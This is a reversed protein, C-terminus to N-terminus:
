LGPSLKSPLPATRAPLSIIKQRGSVKLLRRPMLSWAAKCFCWRMTSPMGSASFGPAAVLAPRLPPLLLAPAARLATASQRARRGFAVLLACSSALKSDKSTSKSCTFSCVWSNSSVSSSITKSPCGEDTAMDLHSTIGFSGTMAATLERLSSGTDGEGCAGDASLFDSSSSLFSARMSCRLLSSFSSSFKRAALTSRLGDGIRVANLKDQRGGVGWGLRQLSGPFCSRSRRGGGWAANANRPRPAHCISKM